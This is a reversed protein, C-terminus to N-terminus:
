AAVEDRVTDVGDAPKFWRGTKGCTGIFVAALWPTDRHTSCFVFRATRSGDVPNPLSMNEPASCWEFGAAVGANFHKCNNCLKM